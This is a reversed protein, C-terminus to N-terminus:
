VNDVRYKGLWAGIALDYNEDLMFPPLSKLHANNGSKVEVPFIIGNWVYIFDVKATSGRKNRVL